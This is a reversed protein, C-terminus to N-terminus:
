GRDLARKLGAPDGEPFVWVAIAHEDKCLRSVLDPADDGREDKEASPASEPPAAAMELRLSRPRMDVWATEIQALCEARTGSFGTDTWGPAGERDVPWISYQDEHNSVVKYIASDTAEQTM